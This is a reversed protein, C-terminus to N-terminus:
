WSQRFVVELRHNVLKLRLRIGGYPLLARVFGDFGHFVVRDAIYASTGIAFVPILKNEAVTAVNADMLVAVSDKFDVIPLIPKALGALHAQERGQNGFDLTKPFGLVLTSSINAVRRCSSFPSLNPSFRRNSKLGM